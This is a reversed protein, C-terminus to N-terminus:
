SGLVYDGQSLAKASAPPARSFGPRRRSATSVRARRVRRRWATRAALQAPPGAGIRKKKPRPVGGAGFYIKGPLCLSRAAQGRSQAPRRGPKAPGRLKQHCRLNGSLSRHGSAPVLGGVWGERTYITPQVAPHGVHGPGGPARRAGGGRATVLLGRRPPTASQRRPEAALVAPRLQTPKKQGRCVSHKAQGAFACVPRAACKQPARTHSAKHANSTNPQTIQVQWCRCGLHTARCQISCILVRWARLVFWV